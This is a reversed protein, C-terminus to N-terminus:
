QFLLKLFVLMEFHGDSLEFQEPKGVNEGFLCLYETAASCSMAFNYKMFLEKLATKSLLIVIAKCQSEHREKFSSNLLKERSSNKLSKEEFVRGFFKDDSFASQYSIIKPINQM